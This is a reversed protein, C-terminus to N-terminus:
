QPAWDEFRDLWRRDLYRAEPWATDVEGEAVMMAWFDRVGDAMPSGREDLATRLVDYHREADERSLRVWTMLTRIAAARDARAMRVGRVFARLLARITAPHRDLFPETAVLLNGLWGRGVEDRESGIRPYGEEAARWTQPTNLLAADVRGARLALLREAGSGGSVVHVDRGPELGRRRLVYRSLMDTPSGPASVALRRGRLAEWSTIGPRGFWEFTSYQIGCYFGRVRFGAAGMGVVTRLSAAVVDVSGAALAQGAAPEAQFTVLDLTLGESSATHDAALYLPLFAASSTALGIRLAPKEPPQARSPSLAGAVLLVTAIRVAGFTRARPMM